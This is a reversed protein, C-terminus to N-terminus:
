LYQFVTYFIIIASAVTNVVNTLGPCQWRTFYQLDYLSACTVNTRNREV